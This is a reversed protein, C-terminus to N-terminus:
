ASEPPAESAAPPTSPEAAPAESPPEAASAKLQVQKTNLSVHSPTGGPPM